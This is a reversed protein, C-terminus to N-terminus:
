SGNFDAEAVIRQKGKLMRLEIRLQDGAQVHLGQPGGLLRENAESARYGSARLRTGSLWTGTVLAKGPAIRVAIVRGPEHFIWAFFQTGGVEVQSDIVFTKKDGDALGEDRKPAHAAKDEFTFETRDTYLIGDLHDVEHQVVAARFGTMTIDVPKGRRDLAQVRVTRPRTVEGRLGPVSLCGEYGTATEEGVPTVVPNILVALPEQLLVIRVMSGLQPAALGACPTSKATAVLDNIIDQTTATSILRPEIEESIERLLPNNDTLIPRIM